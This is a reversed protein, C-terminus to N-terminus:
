PSSPGGDSGPGTALLERLPIWTWDPRSNLEYQVEYFRTLLAKVDLTLGDDTAEASFADSIGKDWDILTGYCDVTVWEIESRKPLPM